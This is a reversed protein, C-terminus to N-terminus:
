DFFWFCSIWPPLAIDKREAQPLKHWHKLMFVKAQDKKTLNKLVHYLKSYNSDDAPDDSQQEPQMNDNSGGATSANVLEWLKKRHQEVQKETDEYRQKKEERDNADEDTLDLVRKATDREHTSEVYERQAELTLMQRGLEKKKGKLDAWTQHCEQKEEDTLGNAM